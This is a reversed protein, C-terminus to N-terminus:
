PAELADGQPEPVEPEPSAKGEAWWDRATRYLQYSAGLICALGIVLQMLNRMHAGWYPLGPQFIWDLHLFDLNWIRRGHRLWGLRILSFFSWGLGFTGLLFGFFFKEIIILHRKM